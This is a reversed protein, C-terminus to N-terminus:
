LELVHAVLERGVNAASRKNPSIGFNPFIAENEFVINNLRKHRDAVVANEPTAVMYAMTGDNLVM